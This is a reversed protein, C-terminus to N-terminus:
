AKKTKKKGTSPASKSKEESVAAMIKEKAKTLAQGYAETWKVKRKDRGLKIANKRCKSSCYYAISGDNKFLHIGRFELEEKGCFVCKVM